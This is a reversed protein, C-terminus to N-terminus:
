SLPRLNPYNQLMEHETLTDNKVQPTWLVEVALIKSIPMSGLKQLAEKLNASSHVACLKHVDKAAVLITMVIFENGSGHARKSTTRQRKIGDVNVLTEEDIKTREEISLQNFRKEGDEKDQKVDVISYCSVWYNPNRLVAVTAEQLIHRLGSPTSTDAVEALKDLDKQLSRATGLLAVKGLYIILLINDGVTSSSSTSSYSSSSSSYSSSYSSSSDSSFSSGGIRGGSAGLASHPNYTLLLGLIVAAIATKKIINELIFKRLVQIIDDFPNKKREQKEETKEFGKSPKVFCNVKFNRDVETKKILFSTNKRISQFHIQTTPFTNLSPNLNGSFKSAKGFSIAGLLAATAM